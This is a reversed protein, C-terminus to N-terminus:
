RNVKEMKGKQRRIERVELPISRTSLGQLDVMIKKTEMM